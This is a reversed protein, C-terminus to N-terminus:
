SVVEARGPLHGAHKSIVGDAHPGVLAMRQGTGRGPPELVRRGPDQGRASEGPARVGIPWREPVERRPRQSAALAGAFQEFRRVAVPRVAVTAARGRGRQGGPHGAADRTRGSHSGHWRVPSIGSAGLKLRGTGRDAPGPRRPRPAPVRSVAQRHAVRPVARGLVVAVVASAAIAPLSLGADRLPGSASRPSGTASSTSPSSAARRVAGLDRGAEGPRLQHDAAAARLLRIRGAGFAVCARARGRATPLAAVLLFAGALVFPLLHYALPEPVLAPDRRVAGPGATVMAWFVTLALSAM